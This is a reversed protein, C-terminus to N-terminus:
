RRLYNLFNNHTEFRETDTNLEFNKFKLLLEDYDVNITELVNFCTKSTIHGLGCGVQIYSEPSFYKGFQYNHYWPLWQESYKLYKKISEPHQDFNKFKNWFETDNRKTLYHFYVFDFIDNNMSCFKENFTQRSAESDNLFGDIHNTFEKLSRIITWISTAELPEIFGSSLGLALCNKNWPKEFYGASFDFVKPFDVNFGLFDKVEQKADENTILNSDFVYGCGYRGEVPIKWMWGYKMAISETYPPIQEENSYDIFFPLARNVPLLNSYSKWPSKFIHDVLLRKFGSCDVIFDCQEVVSSKGSSDSLHIQNVNGNEDINFNDVISDIVKIGREQGERKLFLALKKANFHISSSGHVDFDLIRNSLINIRNHKTYKVKKDNCLKASLIPQDLDHGNAIYGIPILPLQGAQAYDYCDTSDFDKFSHYYHKGDGNWNTFKIGNKMTAGAQKVLDSLPIGLEDFFFILQPTSGEGAGLIGISSSEIVTIDFQPFFKNLYLAALWGATGGGVVVIKKRKQMINNLTLPVLSADASGQLM